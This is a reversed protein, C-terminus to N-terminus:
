GNVTSTVGVADGNQALVVLHTTGTRVPTFFKGGYYDPGFAKEDVIKQRAQEAINEDMLENVTSITDREIDPDALEARRAYAFNFAEIMRHYVTATNNKYFGETM